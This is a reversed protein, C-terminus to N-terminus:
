PYTDKLELVQLKKIYMLYVNGGIIIIIICIPIYYIYFLYRYLLPPLLMFVSSGMVMLVVLVIYSFRSLSEMPITILGSNTCASVTLFICDIYNMNSEITFILISGILSLMIYYIVWCQQYNFRFNYINIIIKNYYNRISKMFIFQIQIIYNSISINIDDREELDIDLQLPGFSENLNINNNNNNNNNNNSNINKNNFDQFNNENSEIINNINSNDNLINNNLINENVCFLHSHNEQSQNATLIEIIPSPRNGISSCMDPMIDEIKIQEM